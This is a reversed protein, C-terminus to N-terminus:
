ANPPTERILADVADIIASLRKSLPEHGNGHLRQRVRHMGDRIRDLQVYAPVDFLTLPMTHRPTDDTM